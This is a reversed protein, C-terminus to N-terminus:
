ELKNLTGKVVLRAKFREITGDIKHKIKYVWKCGIVNKGIPLKVLEWTDNTYLADSEQTMALQWAPNLIEEEYSLPEIDRSVNHISQQSDPCLTTFCVHDLYSIFSTLSHQPDFVDTIPPSSHM